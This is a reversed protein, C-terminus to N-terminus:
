IVHLSFIFQIFSFSPLIIFTQSNYVTCLFWWLKWKLPRKEIGTNASKKNMQEPRCVKPYTAPTKSPDSISRVWDNTNTCQLFSLKSVGLPLRAEDKRWEGGSEQSFPWKRWIKLVLVMNCLTYQSSSCCYLKLTLSLKDCVRSRRCYLITSQRLQNPLPFPM